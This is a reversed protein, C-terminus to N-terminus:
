QKVFKEVAVSEEGEIIFTYSGTELDSIDVTNRGENLQMQENMVMRGSVDYIRVSSKSTIPAIFTLQDSAPNPFLDMEVRNNEGISSLGSCTISPYGNNVSFPVGCFSERNIVVTYTGEADTEWTISCGNENTGSAVIEEDANLVAFIVPYTEAGPGSCINFTYSTNEPLGAFTYGEGAWIEFGEYTEESCEGNNDPTPVTMELDETWNWNTQTVEACPETCNAEFIFDQTCDSEGVLEMTFTIESASDFEGISYEGDSDITIEDSNVSNTLTYSTDTGVGNFNFSLTYTEDNEACEVSASATPYTGCCVVGSNTTIMPYGNGDSGAVGCEGAENIVVLYNGSESATWTISCGDGDGAGFEEVDGSPAIITYEPTWTGAGPGNCHSFTYSGGSEIGTMQYAESQFVEFVEIEQSYGNCGVADFDTWGSSPDPNVWDECQANAQVTFSLFAMVALGSLLSKM